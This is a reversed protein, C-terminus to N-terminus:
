AAFFEALRRCEAELTHAACGSSAREILRRAPRRGRALRELAAVARTRTAPRSWCRRTAWRTRCAASRPRWSRCGAAFAEFLVQPLARPGRSTCSPTARATSRRAARRRAARLRAARRADAVGLEALRAALAGELPGEGCVVLRWRPDRERLRALVDALLLPNKETELRGVSLVRLEGGDWVRARRGRRTSSRTRAVLSVSLTLLGRAGRYNRAGAGPRGRGRPFRRALLRCAGSSRTPPWTCWRRGPHRSRVYRPMDQRVGLCSGGAGCRRSCRRVRVRAPVPRAALGRRRPRARALLARLSRAMARCRRSPTPSRAYHPLPVFEVDDPVRYHSRAPSPTSGGSLM